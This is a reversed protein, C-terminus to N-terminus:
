GHKMMKRTSLYTGILGILMGFLIVGLLTLNLSLASFDFVASFRLQLQYLAYYYILYVAFAALLSGIFGIIVGELLFQGRVHSERAGLLLKVRIDKQRQYLSLNMAIGVTLVSALLFILLVIAGYTSILQSWRLVQAAFEQAYFVDTIGRTAALERAVTEVQSQDELEILIADPFRSDRFSEFLHPMDRFLGQLKALADERTEIKVHRVFSAGALIEAVQETDAQRDVFVKIKVQDNLFGIVDDVGTKLLVMAGTITLSIFILLITALAAGANRRIGEQADRLYYRILHGSSTTVSRDATRRAQPTEPTVVKTIKM